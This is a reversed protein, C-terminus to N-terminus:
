IGVEEAFALMVDTSDTTTSYATDSGPLLPLGVPDLYGVTLGAATAGALAAGGIWGGLAALIAHGVGGKRRETAAAPMEALADAMLTEMFAPRPPAERDRLEAFLADLKAPDEPPTRDPRYTMNM